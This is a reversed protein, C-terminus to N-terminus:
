QKSLRKEISKVVIYLEELMRNNLNRPGFDWIRYFGSNPYNDNYNKFWANPFTKHIFQFTVEVKRAEIEDKEALRFRIIPPIGAELGREEIPKRLLEVTEKPLINAIYPQAFIVESEALSKVKNDPIIPRVGSWRYKLGLEKGLETITVTEKVSHAFLPVVSLMFVPAGKNWAGQDLVKGIKGFYFAPIDGIWLISGGQDLFERFTTNSYYDEAIMDPIVDQAFVVLKEHAVGEEVSKVMFRKLEDAKKIILGKNQLYQAIKDPYGRNDDIWMSPYEDDRYVVTEINKSMKSM